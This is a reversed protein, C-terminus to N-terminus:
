KSNAIAQRVEDVTRQFLALEESTLNMAQIDRAREIASKAAKEESIRDASLALVAYDKRQQDSHYEVFRNLMQTSTIGANITSTLVTAASQITGLISSSTSKISAM